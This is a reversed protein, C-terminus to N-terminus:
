VAVQGAPEVKHGLTFVNLPGSQDLYAGYEQMFAQAEPTQMAKTFDELNTIEIKAVFQYPPESPPNQPDAVVPGLVMDIRYMEYSEVHPMSRVLAVKKDKLYKEYEDAAKSDRANYIAFLTPM